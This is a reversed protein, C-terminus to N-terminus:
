LNLNGGEGGPSWPRDGAEQAARGYTEEAGDTRSRILDKIKAVWRRERETGPLALGIALGAGLAAAAMLFPNEQLVGRSREKFARAKERTATGLEGAKGKAREFVQEARERAQGAKERAKGLAQEARGAAPGASGEAQFSPTGAVDGCAEQFTTGAEARGGSRARLWWIGSAIGVGALVAPIPNDRIIKTVPNRQVRDAVNCGVEKARETSTELMKRARGVTATRIKEMMESKLRDPSLRDKLVNVTESMEARTQEIDARIEDPSRREGLGTLGAEEGM